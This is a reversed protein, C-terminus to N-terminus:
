QLSRPSMLLPLRSPAKRAKRWNKAAPKVSVSAAIAAAASAVPAAVRANAM